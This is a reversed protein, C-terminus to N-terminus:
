RVPLFPDLESTDAVLPRQPDLAATITAHMDDALHGYRDVTTTISEHGLRRQIAPLPVGAAILWSAHSHRLDHIRPTKDLTGPCGCPEAASAHAQCRRAARIAPLWHRYRFNGHHIPHGMPSQFLLEHGPRTSIVGILIDVLEGPLAITRRARNSKPEGIQYTYDPQRKWAKTVTLRHTFLDVDSVLLATAEGWRLGTLALFLLFPRYHETLHEALQDVEPRALFTMEEVKVTPLHTMAGKFPNYGIIRSEIADSMVSSALSHVNKVTKTSPVKGDPGPTERFAILWRGVDEREIDDLPADGFAPFVHIELDRLYDARTRPNARARSAIAKAAYERFTPMGETAPKTQYGIGPEWGAPWRNGSGEVLMKFQTAATLAPFVETQKRGDERWVVRWSPIPEGRVKRQEISAV